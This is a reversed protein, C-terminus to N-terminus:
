FTRRKNFIRTSFELGFFHENRVGLLENYSYRFTYSFSARLNLTRNLIYGAELRQLYVENKIGQGIENGFEMSPNRYSRYINGGLNLSDPDRGYVAYMFDAEAFLNGEEVYAQILGEYFNAGLQHALPQNYHAYNQLVSGHTYTFPRVM